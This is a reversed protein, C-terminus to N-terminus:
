TLKLATKEIGVSPKKERLSYAILGSLLNVIFNMPSRHRSHEIQSINKLQDFVTEVISRKRLMLKDYITILRNKMNNRLKTILHVGKELMEKFLKQSIYGKDGFIKGTIKNGILKSAVSIDHANGPTLTFALLEGRDNVIIHLKFGFFWGMSSHGRKAIKKFVKHSQIRKIHSVVLPTSDIFAIGTTQGFRSALFCYLPFIVEQKIEVFRNYSPLKPFADSLYNLVYGIYFTKFNRFGSLHFLIVITMVESPCLSRKRRPPRKQQAIAYANWEPEFKIWFDHISCFLKVLDAM